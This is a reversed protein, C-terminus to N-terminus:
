FSRINVSIFGKIATFIFSLGTLRVGSRLWTVTPIVLSIFFLSFLLCFCPVSDSSLHCDSVGQLRLSDTEM